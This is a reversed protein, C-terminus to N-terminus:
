YETRSGARKDLVGVRRGERREVQGIGEKEGLLVTLLEHGSSVEIAEEKGSTVGESLDPNGKGESREMLNDRRDIKEGVQDDKL